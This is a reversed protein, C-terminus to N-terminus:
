SINSSKYRNEIDELVEKACLNTQILAGILIQQTMESSITSDRSLVSYVNQMFQLKREKNELKDETKTDFLKIYM